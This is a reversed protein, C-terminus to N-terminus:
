NLFHKDNTAYDMKKASSTNPVSYNTYTTIIPADHTAVTPPITTLESISGCTPVAAPSTSPESFPKETPTDRAIDMTAMIPAVKINHTYIDNTIATTTTTKPEETTATHTHCKENESITGDCKNSSLYEVNLEIAHDLIPDGTSNTHATTSSKKNDQIDSFTIEIEEKNCTNSFLVVAKPTTPLENILVNESLRPQLDSPYENHHQRKRYQFSPSVTRFCKYFSTTTGRHRELCYKRKWVRYTHNTINSFSALDLCTTKSHLFKWLVLILKITNHKLFERNHFISNIWWKRPPRPGMESITRHEDSKSIKGM